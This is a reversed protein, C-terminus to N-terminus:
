KMPKAFPSYISPEPVKPALVARRTRLFAVPEGLDIGGGSAFDDLAEAYAHQGIRQVILSQLLLCLSSCLSVLGSHFAGHSRDDVGSMLFASVDGYNARIRLRWLYDFVSTPHLRGAMALKADKPMNKRTSRSIWEKRGRELRNDRTTELMKAFRPYFDTISPNALNEFHADVKAGSPTGNLQRQNVLTCGTCTMEFPHPLLRDVVHSAVTRLTSTHDDVLGGMGATVLCGHISMYVAYYAQVPTWANAYRLFAEGGLNALRLQIESAWSIALLRRMEAIEASPPKRRQIRGFAPLRRQADVLGQVQDDGHGYLLGVFLEISALYNRHVTFRHSRQEEEKTPLHVSSLDFVEPLDLPLSLPKRQPDIAGV